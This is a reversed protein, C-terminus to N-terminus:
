PADSQAAPGRLLRPQAARPPLRSAALGLLGGRPAAMGLATSRGAAPRRRCVARWREARARAAPVHAARLASRGRDLAGAAARRRADGLRGREAIGRYKGM